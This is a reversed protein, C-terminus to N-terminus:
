PPPRKKKEKKGLAAELLAPAWEPCPRSSPHSPDILWSRIARASVPRGGSQKTMLEAIMERTLGSAEILGRLKDRNDM